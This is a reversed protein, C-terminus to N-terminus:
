QAIKATLFMVMKKQETSSEIAQPLGFLTEEKRSAQEVSDVQGLAITDGDNILVKTYITREYPTLNRELTSVSPRLVVTITGDSNILPLVELSKGIPERTPQLIQTGNKLIVIEEGIVQNSMLEILAPENSLTRVAMQSRISTNSSSKLLDLKAAFEGAPIVIRSSSLGMDKLLEASTEVFLIKIEVQKEQVDLSDIIYSIRNINEPYDIAIISNSNANFSVKGEASKANDVIEFLSKLNGHKIRFIRLELNDGQCFAIAFFFFVFSILILLRKM